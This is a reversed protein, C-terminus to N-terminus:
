SSILNKFEEITEKINKSNFIASGVVFNNVGVKAMKKIAEKNVGGDISIKVDPYKQRLLGAKHIVREDFKEGYHGIKAISMLQIISLQSSIFSFIAELNDIPTELNLVLGLEIGVRECLNILNQCKLQLNSNQTKFKSNKIIAEWHVLIRKVGSGLWKEIEKEVDEVMLHVELKLGTELKEPLNGINENGPWATEPTFKGDMVDLQVWDVYPEVLRVKRALEDFDKAIIAPIIEAV